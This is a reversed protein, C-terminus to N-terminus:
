KLEISNRKCYKEFEKMGKKICKIDVEHSQGQKTVRLMTPVMSYRKEVIMLTYGANDEIYGYDEKHKAVFDNFLKLVDYVDQATGKELDYGASFLTDNFRLMFVDSGDQYQLVSSM